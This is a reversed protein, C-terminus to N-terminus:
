PPRTFSVKSISFNPFKLRLKIRKGREIKLSPEHEEHLSIM